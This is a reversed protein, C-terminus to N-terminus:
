YNYEGKLLYFIPHVPNKSYCIWLWTRDVCPPSYKPESTRTSGVAPSHFLALAPRCPKCGKGGSPLCGQSNLKAPWIGKSRALLVAYALWAEPTLNEAVQRVKWACGTMTPKLGGLTRGAQKLMEKQMARLDQHRCTWSSCSRFTKLPSASGERQM